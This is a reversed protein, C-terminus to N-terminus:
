CEVLSKLSIYNRKIQSSIEEDTQKFWEIGDEISSFCRLRDYFGMWRSSLDNLEAFPTFLEGDEYNMNVERSELASGSALYLGKNVLRNMEEPCNLNSVVLSLITDYKQNLLYGYAKIVVGLDKLAPVLFQDFCDITLDRGIYYLGTVM